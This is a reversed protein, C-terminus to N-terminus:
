KKVIKETKIIKGNSIINLLYLGQPLNSINIQNSTLNTKIVEKGTTNYLKIQLPKSTEKTEINLIDNTPNPYVSISADKKEVENIGLVVEEYNYTSTEVYSLIRTDHDERWREDKSIPYSSNITNFWEEWGEFLLSMTPYLPYHSSSSTDYSINYRSVPQTKWNDTNDTLYCNRQMVRIDDEMNGNNNTQHNYVWEYKSDNVWQGQNFTYAIINLRVGVEDYIYDNKYSYAWEENNYESEICSDIKNNTNYYYEQKYLTDFVNNGINITQIYEGIRNQSYTYYGKSRVISGNESVSVM